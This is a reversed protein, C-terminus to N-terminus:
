NNPYSSGNYPNFPSTSNLLDEVLLDRMFKGTYTIDEGLLFDYDTKDFIYDVAGV